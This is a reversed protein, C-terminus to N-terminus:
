LAGFDTHADTPARHRWLAPFVEILRGFGAHWRWRQGELWVGFIGSVALAFAVATAYQAVDDHHTGFAVRWLLLLPFHMVYIPFTLDALWRFRQVLPTAGPWARGTAGGSPLLWLAVAVWFGAAWDTVFQNAFWFPATGIPLPFPHVTLVVVVTAVLALGVAVWGVAPPLAPRPLGYAACGMLWIPMMLVIKPGAVLCAMLALIWSKRGRGTCFWLGFILYYWSEFGLSWLAINAPPAASFFWLENMFTGTVLYRPLFAGRAYGALLDPHGQFRMAAEVVATLLLAPIVMSCLRALRAQLYDALGRNRAQTTYAIVFGSLVFFVVVAAHAAAGPRTPPHISSPFWMDQAHSCVVTLAAGLRLSDLLVSASGDISRPDNAM